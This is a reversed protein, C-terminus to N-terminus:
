AGESERARERIAAILAALLAAGGLFTASGCGPTSRETAKTCRFPGNVGAASRKTWIAM